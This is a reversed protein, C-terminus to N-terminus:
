TDRLNSFLILVRRKFFLMWLGKRLIGISIYPPKRGILKRDRPQKTAHWFIKFVGRSGWTQKVFFFAVMQLFYTTLGPEVELSQSELSVGKERRGRSIPIRTIGWEREVNRILSSLADARYPSLPDGQRLGRTPVIHGNPQGNILISYTVTRVCQMLLNVWRYAFGLKRLM